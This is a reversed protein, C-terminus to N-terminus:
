PTEGRGLRRLIAGVYAATEAYPPVGGYRDVAEPGANYAALAKTRDGGFRRLLRSLYDAGGDINAAPDAPDVGLTRATGPMLQMVGRAGKPSVASPNFGSERWAVAEVLREDVQHRAAADHIAQATANSPAALGSTAAPRRTIPAPAIARAESGLFQTPRDYRVVAGDPQVELVQAQATAALALIAATLLAQRRM